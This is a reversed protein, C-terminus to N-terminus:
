DRRSRRRPPPDDYEDQYYGRRPRDDQRYSNPRCAGGVGSVAAQCQRLTYYGCNEYANWGGSFACWAGQAQAPSSVAVMAMMAGGALLGGLLLNRVKVM